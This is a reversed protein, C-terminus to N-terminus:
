EEVEMNNDVIESEIHGHAALYGTLQNAVASRTKGGSTMEVGENFQDQYPTPIGLGYEKCFINCVHTEPFHQFASPLNGDGFINEGSNRM